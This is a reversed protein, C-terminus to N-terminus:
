AEGKRVPGGERSEGQAWLVTVVENSAPNYVVALNGGTLVRRGGWTPADLEPAAVVAKVTKTGVGMQQCRLRAHFSIRATPRRATRARPDAITKPQPTTQSM